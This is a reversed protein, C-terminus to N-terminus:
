QDPAEASISLAHIDTTMMKGLAEYIMRHRSITSKGRFADSVIIVDFHGRGDRAGPHGKHLHSQDLVVLSAPSLAETLLSEIKEVRAQNSM